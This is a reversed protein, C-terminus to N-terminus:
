DPARPYDSSARLTLASALGPLCFAFPLALLLKNYKGIM